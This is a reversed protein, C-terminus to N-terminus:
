KYARPARDPIEILVVDCNDHQRDFVISKGDPTIDFARMSASSAFKALVSSSDNKLDILRFEFYPDLGMLVVLGSGDPLFRVREGLVAVRLMPFKVSEGEPTVAFLRQTPGTQAGQYVIMSGDPSWVPNTAAVQQIREVRGDDVRIKFLGNEGGRLGGVAIWKGDPSWCAAGIIDVDEALARPQTGDPNIVLLKGRADDRVVIALLKGDPAVAVPQELRALGGARWIVESKGDRACWLGDGGGVSSLYYLRDGHIRPALARVAGLPHPQVDAETATAGEPLIPVTCLRAQPNAVAAVIRRRDRSASLSKYVQTGQVARRPIKTEIDLEWLWPGSGDRDLATYLVTRDDIPVPHGVDGAGTTLQEPDSGDPRVRWLNMDGRVIYGRVVYIWKGDASWTPFHQHYGEETWMDIKRPDAGRAGAIYLPDGRSRLSYVLRQGDPSWDAHIAGAELWPSTRLGPWSIMALKNGVAGGVWIGEGDGSFGIRRVGAQLYKPSPITIDRNVLVYEGKDIRGAYADFRGGLDSVFAVWLGDPSIAADLEEGLFNTLTTFHANTLLRERAIPADDRRWLLVSLVVVIALAALAFYPARPFPAPGAAVVPAARPESAAEELELRADAIHHFRERPSKALCRRLLRHLSAPTGAPLKEWDPEDNLIVVVLDPVSEGRVLREGTLCEWLVCGFAWIDARADVAQGRAQEPSMYPATGLVVGTATLCPEPGSGIQSSASGPVSKALGFDLVKVGGDPTVRINAPKLDRHVVGNAHAAELADAIREMIALTEDLGLAGRQLRESLDEGPVFEMAIFRTSNTEHVGYVGALNPHSLSALLKAEREFRAIFQEDDALADPLIKIAAARDLTTDEALWVTGMGGEGIQEILRYQLLIQGSKREM